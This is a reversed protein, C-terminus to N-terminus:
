KDEGRIAHGWSLIAGSMISPFAIPFTIEKFTRWHTFISPVHFANCGRNGSLNNRGYFDHDGLRRGYDCHYIFAFKSYM